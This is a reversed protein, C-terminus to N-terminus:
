DFSSQYEPVLIKVLSIVKDLRYEDMSKNLRGLLKNLQEFTLCNEQEKFIMPHDTVIANVGVLLEEYLKEGPRLGTYIIEIDGDPNNKDKLSCGSLSIMKKALEVIRVPEGMNLVCVEGSEALAGAQIVLEVAESITMFYRVIEKHTVTVPGGRSIQDRFLPIVSGSSNLVNGFRVMVFKTQKKQESFAQLILESIRKSAGMINTPRVAKDSSILVYAEVKSNLALKATFLTGLINNKLGSIVNKEVMPVHKYAAAHYITQISFKKLVDQFLEQDLTSGLIPFVNNCKLEQDIAYLAIESHDYLILKNPKLKLIQRSLESGISGGSGTVLVNKGSINKKLLNVKAKVPERGLLDDIEIEKFSELSIKGEAIESFTPLIKVSIPYSNICDLIEKKRSASLANIAIFIEQIQHQEVLKDLDDFSYIKTNNIRRGQMDLSDDFFGIVRYRDSQSLANFIQRGADGAGFIMIRKKDKSTNNSLLFMAIFRSGSLLILALLWNIIIVSRPIGDASILYAMLGWSFAYFTVAKAIIFVSSLGTYRVIHSYVGFFKFFPAAILPSFIAVLALNEAPWHWHGLRISFSLFIVFILMIGDIASLMITKNLSNMKILPSLM